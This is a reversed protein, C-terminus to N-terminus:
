FVFLMGQIWDARARKLFPIKIEEEWVNSGKWGRLISNSMNLKNNQGAHQDGSMIVYKTKCANAELLKSETKWSKVPSEHIVKREQTRADYCIEKQYFWCSARIEWIKNQWFFSLINRDDGKSMMLLKRSYM